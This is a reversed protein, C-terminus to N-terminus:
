GLPIMLSGFIILGLFIEYGFLFAGIALPSRNIDDLDIGAYEKLLEYDIEKDLNFSIISWMKDLDKQGMTFGEANKVILKKTQDNADVVREITLGNDFELNIKGESEGETVMKALKEKGIKQSLALAISHLITSKGKANQGKLTVSKGDPSMTFNIIRGINTLSLSKIKTM